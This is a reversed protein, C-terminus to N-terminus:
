HNETRKKVLLYSVLGLLLGFWIFAWEAMNLFLFEWGRQTCEVSGQFVQQMVQHLPLAQLMYELSAGCQNADGSPFHQLWIQRGSFFLGALSVLCAVGNIILRSCSGSLFLGIFFLLGLMGFALRQLTCLPCPVVGQFFQLYVSAVLLLSVVIFGILYTVRISMIVM